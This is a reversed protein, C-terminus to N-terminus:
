KHIQTKFTDHLVIYDLGSNPIMKQKGAPILVMPRFPRLEPPSHIWADLLLHIYLNLIVSGSLLKESLYYSHFITSKKSHPAPSANIPRHAVIQIILTNFLTDSFFDWEQPPSQDIALLGSAQSETSFLPPFRSLFTPAPSPSSPSTHLRLFFHM